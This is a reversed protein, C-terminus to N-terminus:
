FRFDFGFTPLTPLMRVVSPKKNTDEPNYEIFWENRRSYANFIQLYPEIEIGSIKLQRRVGVDLRHYPLLRASNRRAALIRDVPQDAAPDRLTYRASAPTYAQGTGYVLNATWTWRTFRYAGTLSLDHRRDYKPAFSRGADIEPFTRRTWGLTYGLWGSLRGRRKEVFLELGTAYGEGGTKFVDESTSNAGNDEVEQDIVVLNALDTYYSEVSVRYTNSPEWEAGTVIQWSRRPKVTEDLPLWVDVGSFAEASSLQLYRHYRGGALKLRV